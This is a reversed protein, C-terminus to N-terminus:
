SDVPKGVLQFFPQPITSLQIIRLYRGRRNEVVQVPVRGRNGERRRRARLALLDFGSGTATPPLRLGAPVTSSLSVPEAFVKPALTRRSVRGSLKEVRLLGASERALTM